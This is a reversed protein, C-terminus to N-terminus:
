LILGKLKKEENRSALVGTGEQRRLRRNSKNTKLHANDMQKYHKLKGGATVKFRKQTAKHTKNKVTGKGM